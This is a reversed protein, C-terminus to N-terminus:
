GNARGRGGAGPEGQIAGVELDILHKCVLGRRLAGHLHARWGKKQLVLHLSLLVLHLSLLVLHLFNSLPLLRVAGLEM